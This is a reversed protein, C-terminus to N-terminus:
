RGVVVVTFSNPLIAPRPRPNEATVAPRPGFEATVLYIRGTATDVSMTRAGRQTALNQVVDFKGSAANVVTLTGDGNSSFALHHVPDYGAADPGDGITPNALTKGSDADTVAMKQNHCVSFLHRHARDIALGSPSECDNLPWTATLQLTKADLRAISNKSEINDFVVGKGDAVPFEPKGPLAITSVVKLTRTDIVTVNNSRGNFAWVTKTVPEFVIGDPNEGAPITAVTKFTQRDFVVVANDRGDSIYGYKGEDDLAVGHTGKLRTIADVVKGTKTNVIDVRPGHDIYLLHAHPDATIYDWGGEGGIKWHTEVKYPGSQAVATVSFVTAFPLMWCAAMCIRKLVNSQTM